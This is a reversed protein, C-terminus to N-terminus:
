GGLMKGQNDNRFFIYDIVIWLVFLLDTLTGNESMLLYTYSVLHYQRDMYGLGNELPFMVHFSSFLLHVSVTDIPILM